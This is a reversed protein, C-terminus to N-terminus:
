ARCRVVPRRRISRAFPPLERRQMRASTSRGIARDRRAHRERRSVRQAVIGDDTWRSGSRAGRALDQSRPNGATRDRALADSAASSPPRQSVVVLRPRAWEYLWEPNASRGGHHPALISMRRRSRAPSRSWSTSGSLELDGTLLLHRGAFAVDLVLSRANDSAEPDWGAPPHRVTFSVGATEWSEPATM